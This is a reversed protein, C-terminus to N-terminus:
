QYKTELTTMQGSTENMQAMMKNKARKILTSIASMSKGLIKSVERYSKDYYYRLILVQKYKAPLKEIADDVEKNIEKRICLQDPNGELSPIGLKGEFETVSELSVFKELSGHKVHRIALDHAIGFIWYSFEHTPNYSDLNEYANLFVNQVLDEVEQQNHEIRLFYASLKGQYRDVIQSFLEPHSESVLIALENDSLKKNKQAICVPFLQQKSENTKANITKKSKM